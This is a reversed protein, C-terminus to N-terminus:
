FLPILMHVKPCRAISLQKLTYSFKNSWPLTELHLLRRCDCSEQGSCRRLKEIEAQFVFACSGCLLLYIPTLQKLYFPCFFVLDVSLGVYFYDFATILLIIISSYAVENEKVSSLYKIGAIHWCRSCHYNEVHEAVIFQKLCDELTCGVM